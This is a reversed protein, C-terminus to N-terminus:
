FTSALRVYRTYIVNASSIYGFGFDARYALNAGFQSSSWYIYSLGFDAYKGNTIGMKKYAMDGFAAWESKSPVFWKKSEDKSTIINKAKTLQSLLDSGGEKANNKMNITFEKGKGFDNDTNIVINDEFGAPSSNSWPYSGLDELAMVYFRDKTGSEEIETLVPKTWKENFGTYSDNSVYYKKLGETEKVYEYSSWNDNNWTGNGGVALDAFIIGDPKGDPIKEGKENDFDAYYGVFSTENSITEKSVGDEVDDTSVKGNIDVNVKHGKYTVEFPANVEDEGGLPPNVTPQPKLNNLVNQKALHTSYIGDNGFSGAVEMQVAEKAEAKETAKKAEKAKTLVGNDGTLTAVSVGALILLVIITIVLAILTVGRNKEKM